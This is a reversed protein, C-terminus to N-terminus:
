NYRLQTTKRHKVYWALEGKCTARPRALGAERPDRTHHRCTVARPLKPSKRLAPPDRMDLLHAHTHSCPSPSTLLQGQHNLECLTLIRHLIPCLYLRTNIPLPHTPAHLHLPIQALMSAHTRMCVHVCVCMCVYTPATPKSRGSAPQTFTAEPSALRAAPTSTAKRTAQQVCHKSAQFTDRAMSTSLCDYRCPKATATHPSWTVNAEQACTSSKDGTAYSCWGPVPECIKFDEVSTHERFM